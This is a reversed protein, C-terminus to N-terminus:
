AEVGQQGALMRLDAEIRRNRIWLMAIAWGVCQSPYINAENLWGENLAVKRAREAFYLMCRASPVEWHGPQRREFEVHAQRDSNCEADVMDFVLDMLRVDAVAQPWHGQRPQLKNLAVSYSRM